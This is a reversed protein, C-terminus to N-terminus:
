CLGIISWGTGISPHGRYEQCYYKGPSREDRKAGPTDESQHAAEAPSVNFERAM